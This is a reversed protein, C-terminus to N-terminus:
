AHCVSVSTATRVVVQVSPRHSNNSESLSKTQTSVESPATPIRLM